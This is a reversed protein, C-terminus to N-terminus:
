KWAWLGKICVCPPKYEILAVSTHSHPLCHPWSVTQKNECVRPEASFAFPGKLHNTQALSDCAVEEGLGAPGQQASLM